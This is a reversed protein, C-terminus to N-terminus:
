VQVMVVGTASSAIRACCRAVYSRALSRATGHRATCHLGTARSCAYAAQAGPQSVMGAPSGHQSPFATRQQDHPRPCSDRHESQRVACCTRSLCPEAPVASPSSLLSGEEVGGSAAAVAAPLAATAVAAANASAGADECIFSSFPDSFCSLSASACFIFVIECVASCVVFSSASWSWLRASAYTSCYRDCAM